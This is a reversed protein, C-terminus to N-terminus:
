KLHMIAPTSLQPMVWVVMQGSSTTFHLMCVLGVLYLPRTDPMFISMRSSPALAMQFPARGVAM